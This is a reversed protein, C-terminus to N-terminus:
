VVGAHPVGALRARVRAAIHSVDALTRPAPALVPYAVEAQAARAVVVRDAALTALDVDDVIVVTTVGLQALGAVDAVALARAHRALGAFPDTVILSRAGTRVAANAAIRLSGGRAHGAGDLRAVDPLVAALDDALRSAGPGVLALTEGQLVNLGATRAVYRPRRPASWTALLLEDPTLGIRM